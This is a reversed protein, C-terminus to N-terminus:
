IPDELSPCEASIVHTQCQRRRQSSDERRSREVVPVYDLHCQLTPLQIGAGRRRGYNSENNKEGREETKLTECILRKCTNERRVDSKFQLAKTECIHTGREKTKLTECILRKCTNERHVHLHLFQVAFGASLLTM